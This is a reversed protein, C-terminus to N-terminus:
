RGPSGTRRERVHPKPSRVHSSLVTPRRELLPLGLGSDVEEDLMDLSPPGPSWVRGKPYAYIIGKRAQMCDARARITPYVPTELNQQVLEICVNMLIPSFMHRIRISKHGLNSRLTWIYLSQLMM